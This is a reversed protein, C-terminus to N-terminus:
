HGVIQLQDPDILFAEQRIDYAAQEQGIMRWLHHSIRSEYQRFFHEFAVIREHEALQEPTPNATSRGLLQRQGAIASLVLQFPRWRKGAGAPRSLAPLMAM